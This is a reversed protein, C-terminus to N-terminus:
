KRREAIATQWPSSCLTVYDSVDKTCDNTVLIINGESGEHPKVQVNNVGFSRQVVKGGTRPIGDIVCGLYSRVELSAIFVRIHRLTGESIAAVALNGRVRM